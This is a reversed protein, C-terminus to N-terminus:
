LLRNIINSLTDYDIQLVHNNKKKKKVLKYMSKIYQIWINSQFIKYSYNTCIYAHQCLHKNKFCTTNMTTALLVSKENTRTFPM